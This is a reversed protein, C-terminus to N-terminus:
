RRRMFRRSWDRRIGAIFDDLSRTISGDGDAKLFETIARAYLESRSMGLRRAAGEARRFLEDPVSVATRM